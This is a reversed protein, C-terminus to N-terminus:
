MALEAVSRSNSHPDNFVAVGRENAAGRDIKDVGICFAGVAVLKKAADLVSASIRTKSRVGLITADGIKAILEREELAPKLSEVDYGAARLQEVAVTSINELLLAKLSGGLAPMGPGSTRQLTKAGSAIM